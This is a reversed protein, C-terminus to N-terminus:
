AISGGIVQSSYMDAMNILVALPNRKNVTSMTRSPGGYAWGSPSFAAEHFLVASWQKETPTINYRSLELLLKSDPTVINFADNTIKFTQEEKYKHTYDRERDEDTIMEYQWIKAFDHLFAAIICDDKTISNELDGRYLDKIDLMIGIMECVHQHLGGVWHHHHKAGACVRVFYPHEDYFYLYKERCETDQLETLYERVTTKAYRRRIIRERKNRLADSLSIKIVVGDPEPEFNPLDFDNQPRQDHTM